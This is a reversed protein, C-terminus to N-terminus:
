DCGTVLTACECNRQDGNVICKISAVTSIGTVEVDKSKRRWLQQQWSLERDCAKVLQMNGHESVVAM